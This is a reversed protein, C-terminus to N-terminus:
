PSLAFVPQNPILIIHGLPAVHRGASQQKLSSASYFDLEAHQDLVHVFRVEDDDDWQFNVQEGWSIASFNNYEVVIVWESWYLAIYSQLSLFSFQWFWFNANKWWDYIQTIIKYIKDFSNQTLMLWRSLHEINYWLWWIFTCFIWCDNLMKSTLDFLVFMRTALGEGMKFIHGEISWVPVEKQFYRSWIHEITPDNQIKLLFWYWKKSNSISTYWSDINKKINM